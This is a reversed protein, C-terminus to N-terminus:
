GWVVSDFDEFDSARVSVEQCWWSCIRRCFGPVKVENKTKFTFEEATFSKNEVVCLGLLSVGDLTGSRM